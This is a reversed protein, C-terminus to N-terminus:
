SCGDVKGGVPEADSVGCLAHPDGPSEDHTGAERCDDLSLRGEDDLADSVACYHAADLAALTSLQSASFAHDTSNSNDGSPAISYGIHVDRERLAHDALPRIGNARSAAESKLEVGNNRRM